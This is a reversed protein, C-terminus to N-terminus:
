KVPVRVRLEDFWNVVVRLHNTGRVSAAGTSDMPALREYIHDHGVVVLDAFEVLM